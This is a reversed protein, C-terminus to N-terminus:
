PPEFGEGEAMKLTWYFARKWTDFGNEYGRTVAIEPKNRTVELSNGSKCVNGLINYKVQYQVRSLTPKVERHSIAFDPQFPFGTLTRFQGAATLLFSRELLFCQNLSSGPLQLLYAAQL